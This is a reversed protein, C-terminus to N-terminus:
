RTTGQLGAGAATRKRIREFVRDSYDHSRWIPVDSPAQTREAQEIASRAAAFHDVLCDEIEEAILEDADRLLALLRAVARNQEGANLHALATRSAWIAIWPDADNILDTFRQPIRAAALPMTSLLRLVSRRRNVSANTERGQVIVPAVAADLLPKLARAGFRRIATEAATRTFDDGLAQIFHPLTSIQRFRGSAEIVGALARARLLGFLLPADRTDGARGLARAAANIVADEGTREAPDTIERPASLYERLVDYAKLAELAEVARRRTEFIGSRDRSMLILHLAPVAATGCAITDIVGADGDHLSMLKTIAAGLDHRTTRGPM